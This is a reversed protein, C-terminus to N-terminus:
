PTYFMKMPVYLMHQICWTAIKYEVIAKQNYKCWEIPAIGIKYYLFYIIISPRPRIEFFHHKFRKRVRRTFSYCLRFVENVSRRERGM